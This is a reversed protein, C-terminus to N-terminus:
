ERLEPIIQPKANKGTIETEKASIKIMANKETM